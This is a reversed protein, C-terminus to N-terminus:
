DAFIGYRELIRKFKTIHYNSLNHKCEIDDDKLLKLVVLLHEYDRIVDVAESYELSEIDKMKSVLLSSLAAVMKKMYDKKFFPLKISINKWDFEIDVNKFNVQNTCTNFRLVEQRLLHIITTNSPTITDAVTQIDVKGLSIDGDLDFSFVWTYGYQNGAIDCLELSYVYWQGAEWDGFVYEHGTLYNDGTFVIIWTNGLISEGSLLTGSVQYSFIVTALEDTEWQLIFESYTWTVQMWTLLVPLTKDFRITSHKTMDGINGALDEYDIQYILFWETINENLTLLYSYMNESYSNFEMSDGNLSVLVGTLEEDSEFILNVIWSLGVYWSYTPNATLVFGTLIPSTIDLDEGTNINNWTWNVDDGTGVVSWTDVLTEVSFDFNETGIYLTVTKLTEYELSSFVEVQVVDEVYAFNQGSTRDDWNIRYFGSEVSVQVWTNIWLIPFIESEYWIGTNVGAITWFDFSWPTIDEVYQEAKTIIIYSTQYTWLTLVVETTTEYESSSIVKIQVVDEEYVFNQGSTRDDWNIRYFGSKVSVQVWTNIWLIPLIESEYWTELNAGTVTGFELDEPIIDEVYPETKTTVVFLTNYTWLTLIAETTIEYGTASVLELQILDGSYVLGTSNVWDWSNLRYTGNVISVDVWWTGIGDLVHIYSIYSTDLEADIVPVFVLEDYNASIRHQLAINIFGVLAFVLMISKVVAAGGIAGFIYHRHHKKVHHVIKKGHFKVHKVIKKGHTQVQQSVHRTRSVSSSDTNMIM